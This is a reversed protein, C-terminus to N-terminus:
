GGSCVIHCENIDEVTAFSVIQWLSHFKNTKNNLASYYNVLGSLAYRSEFSFEEFPNLFFFFPCVITCLSDTTINYVAPLKKDWYTAVADKKYEVELNTGKIMKNIDTMETNHFLFLNNSSPIFALCFDQMGFINKILNAQEMATNADEITIQQKAVQIGNADLVTKETDYQKAYQKAQTSFYVKIGYRKADMDSLLGKSAFDASAIVKLLRTKPPVGEALWKKTVYQFFTKGIITDYDKSKKSSDVVNGNILIQNYKTPYVKDALENSLPQFTINGVYGHIHVTMDPPLSDTQVYVTGLTIKTIGKGILLKDDFNFLQASSIMGKNARLTSEFQGFYGMALEVKTLQLEQSNFNKILQGSSDLMCFNKIFIDVETITGLSHQKYQVKIDPKYQCKRIQGLRFSSFKTFDNEAVSQTLQPYYFEYDSRIVFEQAVVDSNKVNATLKLNIVRDFLDLSNLSTKYKDDLLNLNQNIM